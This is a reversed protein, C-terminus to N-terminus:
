PSLNLLSSVFCCLVVRWWLYSVVKKGCAAGGNFFFCSGEGRRLRLVFCCFVAVGGPVSCRMMVVLQWQRVRWCCWRSFCFSSLSAPSFLASSFVCLLFPLFAAVVLAEVFCRCLPFFMAPLLSCGLVLLSPASLLFCPLFGSAPAEARPLPLSFLQQGRSGCGDAVMWAVGPRGGGAGGRTYAMAVTKL